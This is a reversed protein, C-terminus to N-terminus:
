RGREETFTEVIAFKPRRRGELRDRLAAAQRYMERALELQRRGVDRRGELSLMRRYRRTAREDARAAAHARRVQGISAWAPDTVMGAPGVLVAHNGSFPPPSPQRASRDDHM